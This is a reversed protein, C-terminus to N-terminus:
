LGFFKAYKGLIKKGLLVCLLAAALTVAANLPFIVISRYYPIKNFVSILAVHSFYIGFANDGIFRLLKCTYAKEARIYHYAMMFFCMCTPVVSLKVQTGVNTMGRSAFWTAESMQLPISLAWLCVWVWPSIKTKIDCNALMYGFYFYSFWALYYYVLWGWPAAQLYQIVPLQEHTLVPLTYVLFIELPSILLGLYRYKSKALRDILPILLTFTCYMPIFYLMGAADSTILNQLFLSPIQAPTRYHGLITYLLSWVVYPILVKILRKKPNWRQVDSLLGSLFLFLGVAINVFPRLYIQMWGKSMCHLLVVAAIAIGRLIQIHASQKETM